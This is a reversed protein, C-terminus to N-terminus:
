EVPRRNLFAILVALSWVRSWERDDRGALFDRWFASVAPADLLSTRDISSISFTEDLFPKLERRMWISFPLTFGRKKRRLVEDPLVGRLADALAAKTQGGGAKFRAPQAWLWEVFPRDVFPVRLELSHAMSMVDSDRLLVDAMYTRLEWASIIQFVDAGALERSLHELAPHHATAGAAARAEPQLLASGLATSFVRRQLSCLGHLDRASALFDALKRQRVGGRALQDTILGRLAVPLFRWVSL